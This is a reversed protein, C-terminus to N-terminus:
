RLNTRELTLPKQSPVREMGSDAKLAARRKGWTESPEARQGFRWNLGVAVICDTRM